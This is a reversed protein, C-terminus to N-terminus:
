ITRVDIITEPTEGPDVYRKFAMLAVVLADDRWIIGNCADLCFKALNDVDPKSTHFKPASRKLMGANKGTGLHSKPRRMYFFMMVELAGELPKRSFQELAKVKFVAAENQQTSYVGAHKGRICARARKQQVPDGSIVIRATGNKQEIRRKRNARRNSPQQNGPEM